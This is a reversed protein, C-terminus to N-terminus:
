HATAATGDGKGLARQVAAADEAEEDWDIAEPARVLARALVESVHSVPIIELGEKVNDPIEALDKENEQPILM